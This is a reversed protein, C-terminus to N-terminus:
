IQRECIVHDSEVISFVSVVEPAWDGCYTGGRRIVIGIRCGVRVPKWLDAIGSRVGGVWSRVGNDAGASCRKKNREKAPIAEVENDRRLDQGSRLPRERSVRSRVLFGRQTSNE